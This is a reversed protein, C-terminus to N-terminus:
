SAAFHYMGIESGLRHLINMGVELKMRVKNELLTPRMDAIQIQAVQDADGVGFWLNEKQAIIITDNTMGPCEVIPYRGAFAYPIPNDANYKDLYGLDQQSYMFLEFTYPSVYINPKSAADLIARPTVAITERIKDVINADTLAVTSQVQNVTIDALLTPVFGLFSNSGGGGQWIMTETLASADSVLKAILAAQFVEPLNEGPYPAGMTAADWLDLTDFFCIEHAIQLGKLTLVKDVTSISGNPEFDCTSGVFGGTRALNSANWKNKIGSKVSINELTKLEIVSQTFYDGSWEGAYNSTLSVSTAM